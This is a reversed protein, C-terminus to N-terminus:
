LQTKFLRGGTYVRFDAKRTLIEALFAVAGTRLCPSAYNGAYGAAAPALNVILLPEKRNRSGARIAPASSLNDTLHAGITTALSSDLARACDIQANRGAHIRVSPQANRAFAFGAVVTPWGAIKIYNQVDFRM